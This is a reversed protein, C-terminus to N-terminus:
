GRMRGQQEEEPQFLASILDQAPVPLLPDAIWGRERVAQFGESRTM